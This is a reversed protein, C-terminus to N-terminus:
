EFQAACTPSLVFAVRSRLAPASSFYDSLDELKGASPPKPLSEDIRTLLRAAMRLEGSVLFSVRRATEAAAEILRQTSTEIDSSLGSEQLVRRGEPGIAQAVQAVLPDEGDASLIGAATLLAATWRQRDEQSGQTFLRLGPRGQELALAFLAPIEGPSMSVLLESRVVVHLHDDSMLRYPEPLEDIRTLHAHELGLREAVALFTKGMGTKQDLRTARAHGLSEATRHPAAVRLDVAELVDLLAASLPAPLVRRHTERTVLSPLDPKEFEKRLAMVTAKLGADSYVATVLPSLIAWAYRRRGAAAMRQGLDLLMPMAPEGQAILAVTLEQRELQNEPSDPLLELLQQYDEREPSLAIVTRLYSAARDRDSLQHLSVRALHRLARAREPAPSGDARAELIDVVQQWEGRRELVTLLGDVAPTYAPDYSLAMDFAEMAKAEDNELALQARQTWLAALEEPATTRQLLEDIIAAARESQGSRQYYSLASRMVDADSVGARVALDYCVGAEDAEHLRGDWMRALRAYLRGRQEAQAAVLLAQEYHQVASAPRNTDALVDALAQLLGPHLPDIQLGARLDTIAQDRRGQQAALLGHQYTARLRDSPSLAVGGSLVHEYLEYAVQVQGASLRSEAVALAARPLTPDLAHARVFLRDAEAEDGAQRLTSAVEEIRAAHSSVTDPGPPTVRGFAALAERRAYVARLLDGAKAYADALADWAAYDDPTMTIARELFSVAGKADVATVGKQRLRNSRAAPSLEREDPDPLLAAAQRWTKIRRGLAKMGEAAPKCDLDLTRATRYYALVQEPTGGQDDCLEALHCLVLAGLAPPLLKAHRERLSMYAAREGKRLKISALWLLPEPDQPTRESRTTLRAEANATRGLRLDLLRTLENEFFRLSQADAYAHRTPAALGALEDALEQYRGGDRLLRLLRWRLEDDEPHLLLLARYLRECQAAPVAKVHEEALAIAQSLIEAQAEGAEAASARSEILETLEAWAGRARLAQALPEYGPGMPGTEALLARLTQLAGEPDDLSDRQLRACALLMEVRQPGSARSLEIRLRRLELAPPISGATLARIGDLAATNQPDVDLIQAYTSLATEADGLKEQSLAAIELQLEIREAQPADVLAAALQQLGDRLERHLEHKRRYAILVRLSPISKPAIQVIRQHIDRALEAQGLSEYLAAIRVLLDHARQTDQTRAAVTRLVNALVPLLSPDSLALLRSEVEPLPQEALVVAEAYLDFARARDQCRDEYLQAVRALDAAARAADSSGNAAARVKSEVIPLVRRWAGQSEAAALLQDELGPQTPDLRYLVLLHDLAALPSELEGAALAHRARVIAIREAVTEARDWLEAYLADLSRWLKAAAALRRVEALAVADHPNLRVLRVAEHFAREPNGLRTECLSLRKQIAARRLELPASAVTAVELLALADEIRGTAEALRLLPQIEGLDRSLPAQRAVNLTVFARLPDQLKDEYIAALEHLYGARSDADTAAAALDTILAALESFANAEAATRTLQSRLGSDPGLAQLLRRLAFFRGQADDAPVLQLEASRLARPAEEGLTALAVDTAGLLVSPEDVRLRALAQLAPACSPSWRLVRELAAVAAARDGETEWLRAIEMCSAVRQDLTEAIRLEAELAAILDRTRGQARYHPILAALATADGPALDLVRQWAAVARKSDGINEQMNQAAARWIGLLEAKGSSRWAQANLARDVAVFDGRKRYLAALEERVERDDPVASLLQQWCQEASEDDHLRHMSHAGLRRLLEIRTQPNATLALQRELASRLGEQGEEGIADYLTVLAGLAEARSCTLNARREQLNIAMRPNDLQQAAISAARGLLGAREEESSAVEARRALFAVLAELKNYAVLYEETGKWAEAEQPSAELILHYVVAARKLEGAQRLSEAIVRRVDLQTAVDCGDLSRTALQSLAEWDKRAAHVRALTLNAIPDHPRTALIMALVEAARDPQGLGSLYVEALERLLVIQATGSQTSARRSLFDALRDWRRAQRYAESLAGAAVDEADGLRFLREWADIVLDSSHLQDAAITAAERTWELRQQPDWTAEVAGARLEYLGRYDGRERYRATLFDLAEPHNPVLDRLKRFQLEASAVDNLRDRFMRASDALLTTRVETPRTWSANDIASRLLNALAAWDRATALRQADRNFAERERQENNAPSTPAASAAAALPRHEGSAAKSAAAPAATGSLVPAPSPSASPASVPRAAAAPAAPASPPAAPVVAPPPTQNSVARLETQSAAAELDDIPSEFGGGFDNLWDSDTDLAPQNGQTSQKSGQQEAV